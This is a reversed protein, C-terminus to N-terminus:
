TEYGFSANLKESCDVTFNSRRRYKRSEFHTAAARKLGEEVKSCRLM